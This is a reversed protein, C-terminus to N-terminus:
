SRRACVSGSATGVFSGRTRITLVYRRVTSPGCMLTSGTTRLSTLLGRMSTMSAGSTGRVTARVTDMTGDCM